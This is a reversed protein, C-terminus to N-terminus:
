GRKKNALSSELADSATRCKSPLPFLTVKKLVPKRLFHICLALSSWPSSSANCRDKGSCKCFTSSHFRRKSQLSIRVANFYGSTLIMSSIILPKGIVPQTSSDPTKWGSTLGGSIVTCCSFPMANPTLWATTSEKRWAATVSKSAGAQSSVLISISRPHNAGHSTSSRTLNM